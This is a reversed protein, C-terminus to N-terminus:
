AVYITLQQGPRIVTRAGLGNATLVDRVPVGFRRAIRAVTDGRRVRYTEVRVPRPPHIVLQQGVQLRSSRLDNWSMVDRYRVAFVDAITQLTNGRRVTYVVRPTGDGGSRVALTQGVRLHYPPALGNWSALDRYSVGHRAAIESLTDGRRVRYTAATAAPEASATAAAPPPPSPREAPPSPGSELAATLVEGGGKPVYLPFNRV